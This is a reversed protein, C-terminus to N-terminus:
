EVEYFGVIRVRKTGSTAWGASAMDTYAQVWQSNAGIWWRAAHTLETGGNNAYALTGSSVIGTINPMFIPVTIKATNGNSTGNIDVVFFCIKGIVRYRAVNVTYGAAWGEVTPTYNLWGGDINSHTHNATAFETSDKGDLKDSNAANVSTQNAPKKLETEIATVEDQLDNIHSAYIKDVGDVKPTFSKINGPFVATM